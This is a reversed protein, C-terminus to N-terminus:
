EREVITLGAVENGDWHPDLTVHGVRGWNILMVLGREMTFSIVDTNTMWDAIEARIADQDRGEPYAFAVPLDPSTVLLPM